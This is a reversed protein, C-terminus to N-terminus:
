LDYSAMSGAYVLYSVPIVLYPFLYFYVSKVFLRQIKHVVVILRIYISPTEELLERQQEMDHKFAEKESESMNKRAALEKDLEEPNLKKFHPNLFTIKRFSIKDNEKLVM